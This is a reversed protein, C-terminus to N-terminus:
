RVDFDGRKARREFFAFNHMHEPWAVARTGILSGRGQRGNSRMTVEIRSTLLM